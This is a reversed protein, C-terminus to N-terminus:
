GVKRAPAVIPPHALDAQSAVLALEGSGAALTRCLVAYLSGVTKELAAAATRGCLLHGLLLAAFVDGTGNPPATLSLMPTDALWVGDDAALLTGIRGAGVAPSKLGTVAVRSPGRSRLSQAQAITEALTVATRGTLYELEFRNPTLIDAAPLAHDLFFRPIDSAVFLGREESGMVPDCCWVAGATQQRVRRVADLVVL